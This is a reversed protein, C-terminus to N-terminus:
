ARLVLVLQPVQPLAQGPVEVQEPPTQTQGLPWVRHPVAQTLVLVLVLWQPPQPWFQTAGVLAVTCPQALPTQWYAQVAPQPSQLPLMASPQSVGRLEVELQPVQPLAQGARVLALTAQEPPAQM